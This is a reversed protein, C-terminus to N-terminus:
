KIGRDKEYAYDLESDYKQNDCHDIGEHMKFDMGEKCGIVYDFPTIGMGFTRKIAKLCVDCVTQNKSYCEDLQVLKDTERQFLANEIINIERQIMRKKSPDDIQEKRKKLNEIALKIYAVAKNLDDKITADIIKGVVVTSITGM